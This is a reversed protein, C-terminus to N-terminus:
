AATNYTTETPIVRLNRREWMRRVPPLMREGVASVKDAVTIVWGETTKPPTAMLPFMHHRCIDYVRERDEPDSFFVSLDASEIPHLRCMSSNSPFRERDLIGLDHCLCGIVLARTNTRIHFKDLLYGIGLAVFTVNLSHMGVTSCHHHCQELAERFKLSNLVPKGYKEINYINESQLIIMGELKSILCTDLINIETQGRNYRTKSTIFIFKKIVRKCAVRECV